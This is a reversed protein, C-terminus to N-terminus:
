EAKQDPGQFFSGQVLALTHWEHQVNANITYPLSHETLPKPRWDSANRLRLQYDLRCHVPNPSPRTNNLLANSISGQMMQQGANETM